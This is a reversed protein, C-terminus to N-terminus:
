GGVHTPLIGLPYAIHQRDWNGIECNAFTLMQLCRSLDPCTPRDQALRARNLNFFNNCRQTKHQADFRCGCTTENNIGFSHINTNRKSNHDSNPDSTQNGFWSSLDLFMSGKWLPDPLARRNDATDYGM